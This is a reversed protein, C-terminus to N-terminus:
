DVLLSADTRFCDVLVIEEPRRTEVLATAKGSLELVLHELELVQLHPFVLVYQCHRLQNQNLRRPVSSEVHRELEPGAGAREALEM